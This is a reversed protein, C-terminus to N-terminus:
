WGRMNKRYIFAFFPVGLISTLLGIPIETSYLMRAVDDVLLLFVAGVALTTPILM